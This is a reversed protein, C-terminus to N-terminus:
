TGINVPMSTSGSSSTGVRSCAPSDASAEVDVPEDSYGGPPQSRTLTRLLLRHHIRPRRAPDVTPPPVWAVYGDPTPRGTWGERHVKAHHYDCLLSGNSVNTLGGDVWHVLHHADCELPKAPCGPWTCGGDRLALARRQAPSFLRVTRGLDLVTSPGALV